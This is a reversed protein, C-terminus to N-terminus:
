EKGDGALLGAIASGKLLCEEYEAEPSSYATIAGGVQYSLYSAAANYVISRIVVNFDFDKNPAIYGVTGSYIGRRTYEYQESLEMVRYKPAGTMSGMPFMSKLIEGFGINDPLQGCVTSIMQHVNPFTYIGFLEDVEVSGTKCFRGLDNRVLDVVMVNESREKPSNYLQEKSLNDLKGNTHNRPATGKIPQSIISSGEKKMFREPSACLLYKDALKYYAAFPNPSREMLQTYLVVPDVNAYAYFEQCYNIVYCDGLHIHRQLNSVADLYQDKTIRANIAVPPNTKTTIAIEIIDQYIINADQGFVGIHLVNEDLMLVVEPIFLFCEPFGTFDKHHSSIRPATKDKLEYNFHGFIYDNATEVFTSLSDFFNASPEFKKLVGVGALCEVTHHSSNYLHNDLFCCINFRNAWGLMKNKIDTIDNVPFSHYNRQV